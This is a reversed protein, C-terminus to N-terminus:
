IVWKEILPVKETPVFFCNRVGDDESRIITKVKQLGNETHNYFNYNYAKMIVELKKEINNFLTECIIIPKLTKIVHNAGELILYEAGETDLKILDIADIKKNAVYQDLTISKVTIKHSSRNEKTGMNHEGSLNNIAPFKPNKMEYFDITESANSLALPAIQIRNQLGNMKINEKLYHMVGPSPEFAYTVLTSNLKAGLISYYGINTGVDIFTNISAILNIFLKTYEFNEPKEWFLERTLFSTQNTKLYFHLKNKKFRVKLTGSPYIKIHKPLVPSLFYNITRILKNITPQYIIKHFLTM